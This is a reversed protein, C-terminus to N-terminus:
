ALTLEGSDWRLVQGCACTLEPEELTGALPQGCACLRKLPRAPNGVVLTHPAVTRTVVSGMGVMCYRGLTLGPGITANAGVTVGKCVKTDLTHEDPASSRPQGTRHDCARPFMDNTFVVGASIMSESDISVGACIYVMANLKVRDGIVVDYAIYTKEGVICNEGIQAGHRIHVSDWISTGAGVRVGEELLATSHVRVSEHIM